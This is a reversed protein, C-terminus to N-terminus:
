VVSCAKVNTRGALALFSDRGINNWGNWFRLSGSLWNRVIFGEFLFPLGKQFLELGLKEGRM